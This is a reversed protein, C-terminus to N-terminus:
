DTGKEVLQLVADRLSDREGELARMGHRHRRLKSGLEGRARVEEQLEEAHSLRLADLADLTSLLRAHLASLRSDSAKLQLELSAIQANKRSLAHLLDSTSPTSSPGMSQHLHTALRPPPAHPQRFQPSSVPSLLVYPSPPVSLANHRSDLL